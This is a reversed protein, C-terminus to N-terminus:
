FMIVVTINKEMNHDFHGSRFLILQYDLIESSLQYYKLCSSVDDRHGLPNPGGLNLGRNLDTLPYPGGEASKSRGVFSLSFMM